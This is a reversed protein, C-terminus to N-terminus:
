ASRSGFKLQLKSIVTGM